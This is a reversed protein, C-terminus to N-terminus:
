RGNYAGRAIQHLKEEIEQIQRALAQKETKKSRNHVAVLIEYTATYQVAMHVRGGGCKRQANVVLQRDVVM